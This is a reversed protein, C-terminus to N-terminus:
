GAMHYICQAKEYVGPLETKGLCCCDSGSLTKKVFIDGEM